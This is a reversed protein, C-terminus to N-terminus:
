RGRADIESPWSKSFGMTYSTRSGIVADVETVSQASRMRAIASEGVLRGRGPGIVQVRPHLAMVGADESAEHSFWSLPERCPGPQRGTTVMKQTRIGATTDGTMSPASATVPSGVASSSSLVSGSAITRPM